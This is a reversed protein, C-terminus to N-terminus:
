KVHGAFPYAHTCGSQRGAMLSKTLPLCCLTWTRWCRKRRWKNGTNATPPLMTVRMDCALSKFCTPLAYRLLISISEYFAVLVSHLILENEDQSGTVYFMLDGIYKYVVIYNDFMVIEAAFPLLATPQTPSCLRLVSRPADASHPAGEARANTRSTKNWLSKEFNSQSSM